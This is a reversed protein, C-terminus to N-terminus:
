RLKTRFYKKVKNKKQPGGWVGGELRGPPRRSSILGWFRCFVVFDVFLCAGLNWPTNKRLDSFRRLCGGCLRVRSPSGLVPLNLLLRCLDVFYLPCMSCFDLSTNKRLDGFRQLCCRCWAGQHSVQFRYCIYM